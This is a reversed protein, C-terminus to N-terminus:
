DQDTDEDDQPKAPTAKGKAKAKAKAKSGKTKAKAKPPKKASWAKQLQDPIERGSGELSHLAFLVCEDIPHRRLSLARAVDIYDTEMNKEAKVLGM